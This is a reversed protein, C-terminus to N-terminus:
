QLRDLLARAAQLDPTDFGETFWAYIENLQQHASNAQGQQQWFRAQSVTARLELMKAKQQRAIARAQEFCREIEGPPAHRSILLEGRLRHLEAELNREDNKEIFQQMEDLVALGQESQGAKGYTEALLSLFYTRLVETGTALSAALGRQMQEIGAETQGLAARAWGQLVNGWSFFQALGHETTLEIVTEALQNVQEPERRHAHLIAAYAQANAQTPLHAVKQALPLAEQCRSLAQDPYGLQWLVWALFMRGAVGPEQGYLYALSCHETIDHQEVLREYHERAQTLEGLCWLTGGVMREAVIVSVDQKEQALALFEQGLELAQLHRGGGWHNVCLGFLVPLLHSTAGLQRCLERAREYTQGVEAAAFGLTSSLTNGLVVQLAL